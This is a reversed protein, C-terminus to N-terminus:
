CKLTGSLLFTLTMHVKAVHMGVKKNAQNNKINNYNLNKPAFEVVGTLIRVIGLL